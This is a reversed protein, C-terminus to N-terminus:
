PSVEKGTSSDDDTTAGADARAKIDVIVQKLLEPNRLQVEFSETEGKHNRFRIVTVSGLFQRKTEISRIDTAPVDYELDFFDPLFMLNFPCHPGVRLRGADVAVWLCNSAGGLRTRTNRHSRGSRWTELFSASAFTPLILYRGKRRRNVVSAAVFAVLCVLHLLFFAAFIQPSISM